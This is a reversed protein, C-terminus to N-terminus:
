GKQIGPKKYTKKARANGRTRQTQPEVIGRKINQAKDKLEKQLKTCHKYTYAGKEKQSEIGTGGRMHDEVENGFYLPRSGAIGFSGGEFKDKNRYRTSIKACL